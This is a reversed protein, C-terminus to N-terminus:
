YGRITVVRTVERRFANEAIVTESGFDAAAREVEILERRIALRIESAAARDAREDIGPDDAVVQSRPSICIEAAIDASAHESFEIGM